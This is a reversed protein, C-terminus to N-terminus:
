ISEIIVSRSLIELVLIEESFEKVFNSSSDVAGRILFGLASQQDAYKFSACSDTSGAKGSVIGYDSVFVNM